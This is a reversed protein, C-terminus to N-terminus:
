YDPQSEITYDSAASERIVYRLPAGDQGLNNLLYNKLARSWTIWEKYM